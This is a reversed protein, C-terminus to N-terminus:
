PLRANGFSADDKVVEALAWRWTQWRSARGLVRERRMVVAVELTPHETQM